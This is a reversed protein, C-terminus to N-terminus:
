QNRVKIGPEDVAWVGLIRVDTCFLSSVVRLVLLHWCCLLDASFSLFVQNAALYLQVLTERPSQPGSMITLTMLWHEARSLGENWTTESALGM